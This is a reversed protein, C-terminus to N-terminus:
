SLSPFIFVDEGETPWNTPTTTGTKTTQVQLATTLLHAIKKALPDAKEPISRTHPISYQSQNEADWGLFDDGEQKNYHLFYEDGSITHIINNHAGTTTETFEVFDNYFRLSFLGICNNSVCAPPKVVKCCIHVELLSVVSRQKDEPILLSHFIYRICQKKGPPFLTNILRHVDVGERMHFHDEEDFSSVFKPFVDKDYVEDPIKPCLGVIDDLHCFRIIHPPINMKHLYQVQKEAPHRHTMKKSVSRSMAVHKPQSFQIRQPGFVVQNIIHAKDTYNSRVCTLYERLLEMALLREGPTGERHDMVKGDLFFGRHSIELRGRIILAKKSVSNDQTMCHLYYRYKYAILILKSANNWNLQQLPFELLLMMEQRKRQERIPPIPHHLHHLADRRNREEMEDPTSQKLKQLLPTMRLVM